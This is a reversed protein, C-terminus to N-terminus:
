AYEAWKASPVDPFRRAPAVPSLYAPNSTYKMLALGAHANDAL